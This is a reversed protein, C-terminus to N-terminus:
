SIFGLNMLRFKMAVESVGFANALASLAVVGSDLMSRVQAAPMLLEAAFRNAETEVRDHNLLNFAAASDRPRPGHGLAYHGLEHAITFRRRTAAEGANFLITPRGEDLKYWGSATAASEADLPLLRIGEAAAIAAPDIPAQKGAWHKRLLDAAIEKERM